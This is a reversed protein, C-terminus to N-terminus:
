IYASEFSSEGIQMSRDAEVEQTELCVGYLAEVNIINDTSLKWLYAFLSSVIWAVAFIIGLTLNDSSFDESIDAISASKHVIRHCIVTTSLSIALKTVFFLWETIIDFRIVDMKTKTLISRASAIYSTSTVVVETTIQDNLFKIISEIVSLLFTLCATIIPSSPNAFVSKPIKKLVYAGIFKLSGAFGIILGSLCVTGM